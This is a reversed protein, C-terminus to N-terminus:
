IHEEIEVSKCWYQWLCGAVYGVRQVGSEALYGMVVNSLAIDLDSMEAGSGERLTNREFNFVTLSALNGLHQLPM